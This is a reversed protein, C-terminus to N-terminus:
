DAYLASGAASLRDSLDEVKANVEDIMSGLGTPDAPTPPHLTPSGPGALLLIRAMQSERIKVLPVGSNIMPVVDLDYNLTSDRFTFWDTLVITPGTAQVLMPMDFRGTTPTTTAAPILVALVARMAAMDTVYRRRFELHIHWKHSSDSTSLSGTVLDRRGASGNGDWGNFANLYRAAPHTGRNRWVECLRGYAAVLDATRAYTMDVAAAADDPGNGPRDDPRIVSYNDHPQDQRSIHYGNPHASDGVIGSQTAADDRLHAADEGAEWQESFWRLEATARTGM